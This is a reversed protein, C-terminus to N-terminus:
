SVLGTFVAFIGSTEIEIERFRAAELWRRLQTADGVQGFGGVGPRVRLGDLPRRGLVITSGVLRGGSRLTRAAEQLAEAPQDFCHLGFYSVFLDVEGDALPLDTAAAERFVPASLGRARARTRARDLMRPSLDFGLYRVRQGPQLGRLAVGAGCPCDVVTSGDPADAIARMSAHYPRVDSGWLVRSILRSLREHEIYYSYAAGFPGSFLSRNRQLASTVHGTRAVPVMLRM